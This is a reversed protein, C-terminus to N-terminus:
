SVFATASLFLGFGTSERGQFSYLMVLFNGLFVIFLLSLDLSFSKAMHVGDCNM